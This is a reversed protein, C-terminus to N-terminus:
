EMDAQHIGQAKKKVAARADDPKMDAKTRVPEVPVPETALITHAPLEDGTFMYTLLKEGPGIMRGNVFARKLPRVEVNQFKPEAM